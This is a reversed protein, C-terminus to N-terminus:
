RRFKYHKQNTKSYIVDITWEGTSSKARTGRLKITTGSPTTFVKLDPEDKIVKIGPGRKLDRYIRHAEQKPNASTIVRGRAGKRTAPVAREELRDIIRQRRAAFKAVIRASAKTAVGKARCLIGLTFCALQRAIDCVKRGVKCVKEVLQNCAKLSRACAKVLEDELRDITWKCIQKVGPIKCGLKKVFAARAGTGGSIPYGGVGEFEGVLAGAEPDSGTPQTAVGAPEVSADAAAPAAGRGINEPTQEGCSRSGGGIREMQNSIACSITRGVDSASSAVVLVIAAVVFLLGVYEATTQGVEGRGARPSLQLM